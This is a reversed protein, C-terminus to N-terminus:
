PQIVLELGKGQDPAFITVRQDGPTIEVRKGDVTASSPKTTFGNIEVAIEKWWATYQGEHGSIHIALAGNQPLLECTFRMRLFEGRKYAFTKGDDQYIVGECQPGPFVRLTLPGEPQQSTSEVLPQIPIIAGPRVFVPLDGLEPHIRTTTAAAALASNQVLDGSSGQVPPAANLHQGTWFDYWGSSPLQADYDNPEDPSPPPAVLLDPGVMFEGSSPIDIDMPHRDATADPFEMFLPRLLPLGTHTGEEMVTYLYPLLKYREEIFRRRIAEQDPGGAWPEHDGTGKEAHDRDIPQFAAIEIWKTLLEPSPTGAYGGVDAGALSFGSLGLNKLMSTTLRLHNWTSSNDGTWTAAYRQGGAYSARTLVFPRVDQKLVLQGEFTARSNEMGYVNHIEQHTANRSEFGPEDIRHVVTNPMTKLSNFVSPENMDNWFGDIGLKTFHKYLSGWWTRTSEQTFDPFVSPGPWVPGVFLSGDVNKLFHDGAIGSDFPFYNQGPVDAIHLDTIAVVHFKENHLTAIMGSLNPFAQKNITFPRNRDQYDIDLYIADAPINDKRLRDAVELVREQSMYSYRSQQFGLAWLPPLPTPGTLWAYNALVQKASPGYLLYVDVPGGEARYEFTNTLTKGFDFSSPWTNDILVGLSTGARYGLYFPISKYLPDTSEQWGYSDTNWMRFAQDRRDFAGTKDGLGFYHEDAPMAKALRFRKGRFQMPEADRQLVHGDRALLTLLGTSRNVTIRLSATHFAAMTADSDQTVATSATRAEPLVAWSADEPLTSNGARIRLVDDRLATIRLILSGDRLEIGNALPTASTVRAFSLTDPSTSPDGQALVLRSIALVGFIICTNLAPVSRPRMAKELIPVM